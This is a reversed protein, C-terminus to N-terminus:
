ERENSTSEIVTDVTREVYESYPVTILSLIREDNFWFREQKKEWEIIKEVETLEM